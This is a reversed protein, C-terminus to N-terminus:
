GVRCCGENLYSVFYWNCYNICYGGIVVDIIGGKEISWIWIVIIVSDVVIFLVKFVVVSSFVM